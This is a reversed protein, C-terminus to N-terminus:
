AEGEAAARCARENAMFQRITKETSRYIQGGRRLRGVLESNNAGKKGFYSEGMGTEELFADIEELLDQFPVADVTAHSTM